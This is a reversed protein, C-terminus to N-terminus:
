FAPFPHSFFFFFFSFSLQSHVPIASFLALFFYRASPSTHTAINQGLAPKLPLVNTLEPNEVSLVDLEADVSGCATPSQSLFTRVYLSSVCVSLCNKFKGGKGM